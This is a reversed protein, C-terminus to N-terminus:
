IPKGEPTCKFLQETGCAPCCHGAEFEVGNHFDAECHSWIKGCSASGCKHHHVETAKKRRRPRTTFLDALMADVAAVYECDDLTRTTSM